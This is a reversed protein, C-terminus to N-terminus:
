PRGGAQSINMQNCMENNPNISRCYYVCGMRNQECYSNIEAIDLSNEFLSTVENKADDNIQFDKQSVGNRNSNNRIVFGAFIGIVLGSILGIVLGIIIGRKLKEM